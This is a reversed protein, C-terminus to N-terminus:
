GVSVVGRDFYIFLNLIVLYGLLVKPGFVRRGFRNYQEVFRSLTEKVRLLSQPLQM